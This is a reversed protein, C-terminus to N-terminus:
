AEKHKDLKILTVKGTSKDPHVPFEWDVTEGPLTSHIGRGLVLGCHKEAYERAQAKDKAEIFFRGEFVFRTKVQYTM